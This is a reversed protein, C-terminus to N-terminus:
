DRGALWGGILSAFVATVGAIRGAALAALVVAPLLIMFGTIDKYFASAAWRLVLFGVAYALRDPCQRQHVASAIRALRALLTDTALIKRLFAKADM